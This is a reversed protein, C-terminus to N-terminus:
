QRSGPEFLRQRALSKIDVLHDVEIALGLRGVLDGDTMRDVTQTEQAGQIPALKDLVHALDILRKTEIRGANIPFHIKGRAISIAMRDLGDGAVTQELLRLYRLLRDLQRFAARLLLSHLI